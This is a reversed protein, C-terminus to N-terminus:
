AIKKQLTSLYIHECELKVHAEHFSPFGLRAGQIAVQVSDCVSVGFSLVRHKLPTAQREAIPSDVSMGNNEVIFAIPLRHLAAFNLSEWFVGQETGADGICCVAIADSGDLKLAIATGVAVGVLGGVIASSHFNIDGYSVSQSGAFGGNVGSPLGMIEDWLDDEAEKHWAEGSGPAWAKAFYMHHNRHTSFLWDEPRIVEHVDAAVGEHGLSLHVPSYVDAMNDLLRHEFARVKAIFEAREM